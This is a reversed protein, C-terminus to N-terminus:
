IKYSAVIKDWEEVNVKTNKPVQEVFQKVVNKGTKLAALYSHVGDVIYIENNYLAVKIPKLVKGKELKLALKDIRKASIKNYDCSPLIRSKGLGVEAIKFLKDLSDLYVNNYILYEYNPIHAQEKKYLNLRAKIKAPNEGRNILRQKLDKKTATLFVSTINLQDGLGEIINKCGMVTIDKLVVEAEKLGDVFLERSTGYYNNCFFDYELIEHNKIKDEFEPVTIYQYQNVTDTERRARTTYSSIFKYNNKGLMGQILTNKGVGGSGSILMVLGNNKM